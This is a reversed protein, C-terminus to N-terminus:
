DEVILNQVETDHLLSASSGFGGDLELVQHLSVSNFVGVATSFFELSGHDFLVVM